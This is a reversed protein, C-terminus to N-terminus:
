PLSGSPAISVSGGDAVHVSLYHEYLLGMGILPAGELCHATIQRHQGDWIVACEYLDVEVVSGDALYARTSDFPVLALADVVALPVTLWETFGTDVVADLRERTGCEAVVELSVIAERDATVIGTIM